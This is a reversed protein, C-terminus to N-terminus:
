KKRKTNMFGLDIGLNQLQMMAQKKAPDIETRVFTPTRAVKEPRTVDFFPSLYQELETDTLKSLQQASCNLLQPLTM